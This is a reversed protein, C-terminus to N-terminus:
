NVDLFWKKRCIYFGWRHLAIKLWNRLKSMRTGQFYALNLFMEPRPFGTYGLAIAADPWTGTKAHGHARFLRTRGTCRWFSITQGRAAGDAVTPASCTRPYPYVYVPIPARVRTHTCMCPPYMTCTYM